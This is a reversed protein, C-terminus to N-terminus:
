FFSARFSELLKKVVFPVPFISMSYTSISGFVVKILTLGGGISLTKAKSSLKAKFKEVVSSWANIISM